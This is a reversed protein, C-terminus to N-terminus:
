VRMTMILQDINLFPKILILIAPLLTHEETLPDLM